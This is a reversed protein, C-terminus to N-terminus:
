SVHTDEKPESMLWEDTTKTKLIEFLLEGDSAFTKEAKANPYFRHWVNEAPGDFLVVCNGKGDGEADRHIICINDVVQRGGDEDKDDLCNMEHTSFLACAVVGDRCLGDIAIRVDRIFQQANAPDFGTTPEDLILIAPRRALKMAVVRALLEARRREGGSLGSMNKKLADELRHECFSAKIAARVERVSKRVPAVLAQVIQIMAVDVHIRQTKSVPFTQPLYFLGGSDQLQRRWNAMACVSRFATSKVCKGFMCLRSMEVNGGIGFAPCGMLLSLFVSKGCGSGGIVATIEGSRLCFKPIHISMDEWEHTETEIRGKLIFNSIGLIDTQREATKSAPM